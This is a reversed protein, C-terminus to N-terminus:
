KNALKLITDVNDAAVADYLDRVKSSDPFVVSETGVQGTGRTPSTVFTLNDSRLHRLDMALTFFSLTEDVSVADATAQLFRNLRVPNTVLGASVGQDLIAKMVQQQHRIRTFDGDRFQQRQRAYDLATAGDMHHKGRTFTRYPKHISRFTVDVDIDIGGVADVIAEFGSFDITVVHDIRVRTFREVARVMLPIGGWAFAANVKADRGGRKGDKTSPVYVWTDRPISILQASSRGRALHVLIITDSRSGDANDPDRSDSGLVLINLAGPVVLTPREVEPVEEFVDFRDIGAEVSRLYLAVSAVAGGALVLLVVLSILLVKRLRRRPRGPAAEAGAPDDGPPPRDAGGATEAAPDAPDQAAAPDARDRAAAPDALDPRSRGDAAVDATVLEDAGAVPPSPASPGGSGPAAPSASRPAAPGTLGPAPPRPYSPRAEGGFVTGSVGPPTVGLPSEGLPSEGLPATRTTARAQPGPVSGPPPRGIVPPTLDRWAASRPPPVGLSRPSRFGSPPVASLVATVDNEPPDPQSPM